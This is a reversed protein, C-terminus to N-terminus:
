SQPFNMSTNHSVKHFVGQMFSHGLLENEKGIYGALSKALKEPPRVENHSEDNM